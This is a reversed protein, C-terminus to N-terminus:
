EPNHTNVVEKEIVKESSNEKISTNVTEVKQSGVREIVTEPKWENGIYLLGLGAFFIIGFFLLFRGFDGWQFQDKYISRILFFFFLPATNVMFMLGAIQWVNQAFKLLQIDISIATFIAVFLGFYQILDQKQEKIEKEQKKIKDALGEIEEPTLSFASKFEELDRMRSQLSIVRRFLREELRRNELESNEILRPQREEEM